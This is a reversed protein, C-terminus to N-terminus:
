ECAVHNGEVKTGWSRATADPVDVMMKTRCFRNGAVTNNFPACMREGGKSTPVAGAMEPFRRLWEARAASEHLLTYVAAPDCSPGSSCNCMSSEWGLGRDDIHVCTDTDECYNGVLKVDRGSDFIDTLYAM